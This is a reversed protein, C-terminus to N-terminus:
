HLLRLRLVRKLTFVLSLLALIFILNHLLREICCCRLWNRFPDTLQYVRVALGVKIESNYLVSSLYVVDNRPAEASLFPPILQRM